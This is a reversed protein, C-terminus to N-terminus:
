MSWERRDLAQDDQANYAACAGMVSSNKMGKTSATRVPLDKGFKTQFSQQVAVISQTQAYEPLLFGERSRNSGNEILRSGQHGGVFSLAQPMYLYVQLAEKEIHPDCTSDKIGNLHLSQIFHTMSNHIVRYRHVCTHTHTHTYMYVALSYMSVAHFHFATKGMHMFPSQIYKMICIPWVESFAFETREQLQGAATDAENEESVALDTKSCQQLKRWITTKPVQLLWM